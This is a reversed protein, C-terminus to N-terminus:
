PISVDFLCEVNNINKSSTVDIHKRKSWYTGDKIDQPCLRAIYKFACHVNTTTTLIVFCGEHNSM